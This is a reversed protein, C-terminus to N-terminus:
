RFYCSVVVRNKVLETGTLIGLIFRFNETNNIREELTKATAPMFQSIENIYDRYQKLKALQISSIKKM